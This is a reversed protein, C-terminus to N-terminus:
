ASNLEYGKYGDNTKGLHDYSAFSYPDIEITVEASKGANLREGSGFYSVFGRLKYFSDAASRM